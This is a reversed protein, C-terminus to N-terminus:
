HKEKIKELQRHLVDVATDTADEFSKSQKKVFLNSGPVEIRIEAIKNDQSESKELRLTVDARIVTKYRSILKDMRENIFEELRHDANFHVTQIKVKM